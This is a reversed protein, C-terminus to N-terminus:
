MFDDVSYALAACEVYLHCSGSTTDRYCRDFVMANGGVSLVSQKLGTKVSQTSPMWDRPREQCYNSVVLGLPKHQLQWIQDRTVERVVTRSIEKTVKTHGYDGINTSIDACGLLSLATTGVILYKM